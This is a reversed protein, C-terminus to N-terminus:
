DILNMDLAKFILKLNSSTFLTLQNGEIIYREAKKLETAFKDEWYESEEDLCMRLTQYNSKINIKNNDLLEYEGGMANCSFSGGFTGDANFSIYGGMGDACETQYPRQRIIGVLEWSNYLDFETQYDIKFDCNNVIGDKSCSVLLLSLVTLIVNLFSKMM